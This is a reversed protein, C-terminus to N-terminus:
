STQLFYMRLAYQYKARTKKRIDGIWGTRPCGNEKWQSHWFISKELHSLM